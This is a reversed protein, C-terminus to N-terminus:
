IKKYEEINLKVDIAADFVNKGEKNILYFNANFKLFLLLM